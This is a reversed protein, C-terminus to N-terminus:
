LRITPILSVKNPDSDERAGQFTQPTLFRAHSTLKGKTRGVLYESGQYTHFLREMSAGEEFRRAEAGALGCGGGPDVFGSVPLGEVGMRGLLFWSGLGAM